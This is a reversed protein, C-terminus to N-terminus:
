GHLRYQKAYELKEKADEITDSLLEVNQMSKKGAQLMKEEVYPIDIDTAFGTLNYLIFFSERSLKKLDEAMDSYSNGLVAVAALAHKLQKQYQDEDFKDSAKYRQHETLKKLAKENEIKWSKMDTPEWPNNVANNKSFKRSVATRHREDVTRGTSDIVLDPNASAKAMKRRNAKAELRKTYMFRSKPIIKGNGLAVYQTSRSNFQSLQAAYSELQKRNYRGINADPRRPDLSTGSLQPGHDQRAMRAIKRRARQELM